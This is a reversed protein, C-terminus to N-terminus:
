GGVVVEVEGVRQQAVRDGLATRIEDLDAFGGVVAVRAPDVGQTGGVPGVDRVDVRHRGVGALGDLDLRDAGRLRDPRADLELDRFLGANMLHLQVQVAQLGVRH